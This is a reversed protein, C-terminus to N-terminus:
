FRPTTCSKEFHLHFSSVLTIDLFNFLLDHIKISGLLLSYPSFSQQVTIFVAPAPIYISITASARVCFNRFPSFFKKVKAAYHQMYTCSAFIDISGSNQQSFLNVNEVLFPLRQIAVTEKNRKPTLLVFAVFHTSHKPDM